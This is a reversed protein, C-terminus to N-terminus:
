ERMSVKIIDVFLYLIKKGRSFSEASSQDWKMGGPSTLIIKISDKVSMWNIAVDIAKFLPEPKLIMGGGGGFPLIMLKSMTELVM